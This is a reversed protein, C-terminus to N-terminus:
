PSADRADREMNPVYARWFWLMVETTLAAVSGSEAYSRTTAGYRITPIQLYTYKIAIGKERAKQATLAALYGGASTGALCVSSRLCGLEECKSVLWSVAIICDLPGAPFPCEPAMRYDVSAVIAEGEFERLLGDDQKATGLCMGGGHFYIILPLPGTKLPKKPRGM